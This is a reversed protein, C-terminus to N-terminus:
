INISSALHSKKRNKSFMVMNPFRRHLLATKAGRGCNAIHDGFKSIPKLATM